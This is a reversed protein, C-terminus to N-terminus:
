EGYIVRHLSLGHPPATPGAARRDKAALIRAFEKESLKGRGVELLTGVLNRVMNRLFGDGIFQFVVLYETELRVLEAKSITRVAGRGGHYDKDRSGSNEFSSFDRTGTLLGMCNSISQFDLSATVHLSYLRLKPPMIPGNFITYHYEKGMASFRAHFEGYVQRTAFVRIAQPLLSNLGRQIDECSIAAGTTFHAVMDDAHVGADTRGAGHVFIDENTMRSLCRELEGQISRDHKQRQWGAFDTGDFAVTIAIKRQAKVHM